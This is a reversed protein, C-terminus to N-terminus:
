DTTPQQAQRKKKPGYPINERSDKITQQIKTNEEPTNTLIHTMVDDTTPTTAPTAPPTAGPKGTRPGSKRPDSRRAPTGIKWDTKRRTIEDEDYPSPHGFAMNPEEEEGSQEKKGEKYFPMKPPSAKHRWEGLVDSQDLNNGSMLMAKNPAQSWAANLGHQYGAAASNWMRGLTSDLRQAAKEALEMQAAPDGSMARVYNMGPM